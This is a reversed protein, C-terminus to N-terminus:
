RARVEASFSGLTIERYTAVTVKTDPNGDVNAPLNEKM